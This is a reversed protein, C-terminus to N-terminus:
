HRRGMHLRWPVLRQRQWRSLCLLCQSLAPRLSGSAGAKRAKSTKCVGGVIRTAHYRPERERCFPSAIKGRCDVVCQRPRRRRSSPPPPPTSRHRLPPSSAGQGWPNSSLRSGGACLDFKCISRWRDRMDFTGAHLSATDDNLQHDSTGLSVLCTRLTSLTPSRL